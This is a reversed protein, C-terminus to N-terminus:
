KEGQNRSETGRERLFNSCTHADDAPSSARSGLHGPKVRGLGAGVNAVAADEGGEEDFFVRSAQHFFFFLLFVGTFFCAKLDSVQAVPKWFGEPEQSDPPKKTTPKKECTNSSFWTMKKPLPLKLFLGRLLLESPIFPLELHPKVGM